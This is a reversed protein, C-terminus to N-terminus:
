IKLSAQYLYDRVLGPQGPPGLLPQTATLRPVLQGQGVGLQCVLRGAVQAVKPEPEAVSHEGVQITRAGLWGGPLEGLALAPRHRLHYHAVGVERLGARGGGEIRGM